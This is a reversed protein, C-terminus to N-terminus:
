KWLVAHGEDILMQNLHIGTQAVQHPNTEKPDFFVDAVYRAFPDQWQSKIIIFPVKKLENELFTKARKGALTALEPTDIGRLRLRETRHIGFGCDIYALLTDGDIVRKVTAVYTYIDATTNKVQKVFYGQEDKCSVVIRKNTPEFSATPVDVHNDFGCDVVIKSKVKNIFHTKILRYHYLLGRKAILKHTSAVEIKPLAEAQLAQKLQVVSLKDKIIRQEWKQRQEEPKIQALYRYHSWSLPLREDITPYAQYVNHTQYLTRQDVQIDLSLQKFINTEGPLARGYKTIYKDIMQGISWYMSVYTREIKNKSNIVTSQITTLLTTYSKQTQILQNKTM